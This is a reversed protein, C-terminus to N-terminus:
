KAYALVNLSILRDNVVATSFDIYEGIENTAKFLWGRPQYMNMGYFGARQLYTCLTEYDFIVRHQDWGTRGGGYLLGWLRELHVGENYLKVIVKFNPVAVRLEGGPHLVRHWERLVLLVQVAGRPTHELVHCAYIAGVSDTEVMSLDDIAAVIDPQCKEDVDVNLYGPIRKRGSGLHLQKM